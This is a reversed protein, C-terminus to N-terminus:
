ISEFVKGLNEIFKNKTYYQLFREKSKEAMKKRLKENEILIVIKEAIEQPNNVSIIFGNEGDIVTEPIAGVNTSIIPLGAAMAELIAFPQGENYSPLVFIDSTMLLDIKEKGTVIGEFKVFSNIKNESIFTFAEEKEKDHRFPGAFIFTVNQHKRIVEPIANILDFFGKFKVLNSLYLIQINKNGKKLDSCYKIFPKEDLGNPIVVIRDEPVLSKFIPKLNEGLVIARSIDKLTWKILKKILFHCQNYLLRLYSGHLHIIIKKNFLKSPILFLSDRLYGLSTQSIPIYVIEPNKAIFLWLLKFFQIFAISINKIDIKGINSLERRDSTNLHIIQIRYQLSSNLITETAISVGHIPPPTPGIILIKKLNNM